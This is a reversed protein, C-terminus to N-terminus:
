GYKRAIILFYSISLPSYKEQFEINLNIDKLFNSFKQYTYMSLYPHDTMKRLLSGWFRGQFTELSADELVLVGGPKVVRKIELLCDKWNSIHHIIGFDFVADFADDAFPLKTADAQMFEILPDSNQNRARHLMRMDLDIGCIKKPNFYKKILKTGVSQGCGIELIKEPDQLSVHKRIIKMELKDQLFSRLPNNMLWYEFTNM